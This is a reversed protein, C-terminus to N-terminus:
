AATSHTPQGHEHISTCAPPASARIIEEIVVKQVDPHLALAVHGIGHLDINKAGPLHSSTQPAIINDHHSYVSVFLARKNEDESHRLQRLWESTAADTAEHSRSMQRCNAGVSFNALVTGHHPTGLTIVRAIRDTGYDRLYARAALGGMSHAVIILKQVGTEKCLADVACHLVSAYEDISGLVPEMDVAYHSIDARILAKSMSKWYGSNCGYGHVLLVPLAAPKAAIYKSFKQFPMSWSSSWMTSGFERLLLACAPGFTLRKSSPTDSRFRWALLFNNTTIIFRAIIIIVVAILLAHWPKEFVAFRVALATLAAALLFQMLILLRTIRVVM